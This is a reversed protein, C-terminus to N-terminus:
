KTTEPKSDAAGSSSTVGTLRAVEAEAQRLEEDLKAPDTAAAHTHQNISEVRQTPKGLFRDLLSNAAALKVNPESVESDRVEIVKFISNTVEGRLLEYVGDRGAENIEALLRTRAWPQRLIQSIWQEAHGTLQAIERNSKGQAKLMIVIRHQPQERHIAANPLKDGFLADGSDRYDQEASSGSMPSNAYIQTNVPNGNRLSSAPKQPQAPAAVVDSLDFETLPANM